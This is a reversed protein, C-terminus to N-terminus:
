VGSGFKFPIALIHARQNEVEICTLVQYHEPQKIRGRYILTILDDRQPMIPKMDTVILYKGSATRFVKDTETFIVTHM